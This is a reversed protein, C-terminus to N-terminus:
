TFFYRSDANVRLTPLADNAQLFTAILRRACHCKGHVIGPDIRTLDIVDVQM